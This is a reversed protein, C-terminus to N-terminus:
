YTLGRPWSSFRRPKRRPKAALVKKKDTQDASDEKHCRLSPQIAEPLTNAVIEFPIESPWAIATAIEHDIL